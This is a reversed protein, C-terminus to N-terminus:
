LCAADKFNDKTRFKRHVRSSEKPERSYLMVDDRSFRILNM